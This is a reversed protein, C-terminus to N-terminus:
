QEIQEAYQPAEQAALAAAEQEAKEHIARVDPHADLYAEWAEAFCLECYIDRSDPPEVLIKGVKGCNKCTVNFLPKGKARKERLMKRHEPSHKPVHTFGQRWFFEQEKATFIFAEGTSQDHLTIDQFNPKGGPAPADQNDMANM